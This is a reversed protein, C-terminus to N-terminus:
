GVKGEQLPQINLNSSKSKDLTTVQSIGHVSSGPLSCLGHPQLLLVHSLSQACICAHWNYRLLIPLFYQM